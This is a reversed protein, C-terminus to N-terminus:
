DALFASLGGGKDKAKRDFVKTDLLAGETRPAKSSADRQFVKTDPLSGEKSVKANVRDSIERSFVKTDHLDRNKDFMKTDNLSTKPDSAETERTLVKTRDLETADAATSREIEQLVTMKSGRKRVHEPGFDQVFLEGDWDYKVGLFADRGAKDVVRSQPQAAVWRGSGADEDEVWVEISPTKFQLCWAPWEWRAPLRGEPPRRNEDAKPDSVASANRAVAGTFGGSNSWDDPLITAAPAVPAVPAPVAPAGVSWPTSMRDAQSRSSKNNVDEQILMPPDAAASDDWSPLAQFDLGQSSKKVGSVGAVTQPTAPAPAPATAPAPAASRHGSVAAQEPALERGGYHDKVVPEPFTAGQQPPRGTESALRAAEQDSRDRISCCQKGTGIVYWLLSSIPTTVTTWMGQSATDDERAHREVADVTGLVEKEKELRSQLEQLPRQRATTPLAGLDKESRLNLPDAFLVNNPVGM